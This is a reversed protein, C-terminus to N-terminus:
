EGRDEIVFDVPQDFTQGDAAVAKWQTKVRTGAVSGTMATVSATARKGSVTAAGLTIQGVYAPLIEITCSLLNQSLVFDQESLDVTYNLPKSGVSCRFEVLPVGM